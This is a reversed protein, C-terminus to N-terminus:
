GGCGLRFWQLSFDVVTTQQTGADSFVGRGSARSYGCPVSQGDIESTHPTANVTSWGQLNAKSLDVLWAPAHLEERTPWLAPLPGKIRHEDRCLGACFTPPPSSASEYRIIFIFGDQANETRLYIHRADNPLAPLDEIAQYDALTADELQPNAFTFMPLGAGDAAAPASGAEVAASPPKTAVVDPTTACGVIVVLLLAFAKVKM